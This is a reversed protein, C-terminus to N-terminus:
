IHPRDAMAIDAQSINANSVDRHELYTIVENVRDSMFDAKPKTGSTFSLIFFLLVFSILVIGTWKLAKMFDFSAM